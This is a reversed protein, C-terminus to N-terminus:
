AKSQYGSWKRMGPESVCLEVDQGIGSYQIRHIISIVNSKEKYTKSEQTVMIDEMEIWATALQLIMKTTTLSTDM